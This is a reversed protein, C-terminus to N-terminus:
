ASLRPGALAGAPRPFRLSLSWGPKAAYRELLQDRRLRAEAVLRTGLSRRVRYKREGFHFTFAVWWVNGNRWLHHDPHTEPHLQLNVATERKRAGSLRPHAVAPARLGPGAHLVENGPGVAGLWM